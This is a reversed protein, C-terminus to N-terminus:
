QKHEWDTLAKKWYSSKFLDKFEPKHGLQADLAATLRQRAAESAQHQQAKQAQLLQHEAQRQAEQEPSLPQSTPGNAREAARARRRAVERRYALAMRPDTRVLDLLTQDESEGSAPLQQTPPRRRRDRDDAM